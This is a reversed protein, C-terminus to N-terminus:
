TAPPQGGAAPAVEVVVRAPTATPATDHPGEPAGSTRLRALKSLTDFWFPAGLSLMVFTILWGILKEPVDAGKLDGMGKAEKTHGLPLGLEKSEKIAKLRTDVSEKTPPAQTATTGREVLEVRLSDDRVLRDAIVLTDVNFGITVLLALVCLILQAKRKYWGSVRAMAGNFWDEVAKRLADRDTGVEDVLALLQQKAGAPLRAAVLQNRVGEIPDTAKSKPAILDLLAISFTRAPIYSPGVRDGLLRRHKRYLGDILPHRYLKARLDTLEAVAVATDTPDPRAATASGAEDKDLLNRLGEELNKARMDFIGAIAEQLASCFLSFLLYVFSLGILVDLAVNGTLDGM